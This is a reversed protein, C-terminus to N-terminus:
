RGRIRFSKLFDFYDKSFMSFGLMRRKELGASEKRRFEKDSYREITPTLIHCFFIHCIPTDAPVVYKDGVEDPIKLYTNINYEIAPEKPDCRFLGPQAVIYNSAPHWWCPQFFMDFPQEGKLVYYSIFKVSVKAFGERFPFNPGFQEEGHTHFVDIECGESVDVKIGSETREVWMDVPLKVVFGNTFMNAFSPCM